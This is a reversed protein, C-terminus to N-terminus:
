LVQQTVVQLQLQIHKELVVLVEVAKNVLLQEVAALL